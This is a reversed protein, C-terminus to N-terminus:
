SLKKPRRQDSIGLCTALSRWKLSTERLQENMEKTIISAPRGGSSASFALPIKEKPCLSSANVTFVSSGHVGLSKKGATKNDDM